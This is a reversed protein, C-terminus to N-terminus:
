YDLSDFLKKFNSLDNGYIKYCLLKVVIFSIVLTAITYHWHGLVENWKGYTDFQFKVMLLAFFLPLIAQYFVMYGELRNKIKLVASKIGDKTLDVNNLLIYKIRYHIILVCAIIVIQGSVMFRSQLGIYFTIAILIITTVGMLLLDLLMKRNTSKLSRETKFEFIQNIETRSYQVTEVKFEKLQDIDIM